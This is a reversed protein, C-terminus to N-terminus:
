NLWFKVIVLQYGKKVASMGTHADCEHNAQATLGLAYENEFSTKFIDLLSILDLKGLFIIWTM